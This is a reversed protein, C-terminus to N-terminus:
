EKEGEDNTNVISYVMLGILGFSIKFVPFSAKFFDDCLHGALIAAVIFIITKLQPKVGGFLKESFKRFPNRM